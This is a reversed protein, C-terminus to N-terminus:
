PCKLLVKKILEIDVFDIDLYIAGGGGSPWKQNAVWEIPAVTALKWEITRISLLTECTEGLCEFHFLFQNKGKSSCEENLGIM